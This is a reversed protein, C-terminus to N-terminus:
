HKRNFIAVRGLLEDLDQVVVWLFHELRDRIRLENEEGPDGRLGPRSCLHDRVPSFQESQQESVYHNGILYGLPGPQQLDEPLQSSPCRRVPKEQTLIM